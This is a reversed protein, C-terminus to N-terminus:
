VQKSFRKNEKESQIMEKDKCLIKQSDDRSGEFVVGYINSTNKLLKLRSRHSAALSQNSDM